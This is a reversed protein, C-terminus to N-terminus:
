GGIARALMAQLVQLGNFGAHNAMPLVASRRGIFALGWLLGLLGIALAVDVGQNAHLAAFMVSFLVLGVKVGGLRQGFRHLIFARQLEERLGGTIAVLLFALAGPTTHLFVEFPNQDVTQLSPAV